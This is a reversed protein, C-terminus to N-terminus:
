KWSVGAKKLAMELYNITNDSDKIIRILERKSCDKLHKYTRKAM